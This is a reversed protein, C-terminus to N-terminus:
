ALYSADHRQKRLNYGRCIDSLPIAQYPKSPEVADCLWHHKRRSSLGDFIVLIPETFIGVVIGVICERNRAPTSPVECYGTSRGLESCTRKGADM